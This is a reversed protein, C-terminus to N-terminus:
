APAIQGLMREYNMKLTQHIKPKGGPNGSEGLKYQFPLREGKKFPRGSPRKRKLRATPFEFTNLTSLEGRGRPWTASFGFAM